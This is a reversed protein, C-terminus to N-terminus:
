LISTHGSVLGDETVGVGEVGKWGKIHNVPEPCFINVIKHLNKEARVTLPKNFIAHAFIILPINQRHM